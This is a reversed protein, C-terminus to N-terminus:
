FRFVSCFTLIAIQYGSAVEYVYETWFHLQRLRPRSLLRFSLATIRHPATIGILRASGGGPVARRVAPPLQRSHGAPFPASESANVLLM